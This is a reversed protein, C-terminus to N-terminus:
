RYPAQGVRLKSRRVFQTSAGAQHVVNPKSVDAFGGLYRDWLGLLRARNTSVRLGYGSWHRDPLWTGWLLRCRVVADMKRRSFASSLHAGNQKERM